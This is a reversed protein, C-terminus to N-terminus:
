DNTITYFLAMGQLGYLLGVELVSDYAGVYAFYKKIYETM